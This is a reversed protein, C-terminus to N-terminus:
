IEDLPCQLPVQKNEAFARSVNCFAKACEETLQPDDCKDLHEVVYRFLGFFDQNIM